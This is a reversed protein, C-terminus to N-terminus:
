RPLHISARLGGESRNALVIEGGHAHVITRAVSLGLGAGGTERSRSRELRYFPAFVEKLEAEPIGPGEDDVVIEIATPAPLVRVRVNGGYKVANDVLNTIARKLALPRCPYKAPAGEEFAVPRGTDAMDACISETLASLDVIRPEEREADERAFALTSAIMSEMEDLTLLTKRREEEDDIYEARLRLLTIPTRLDHSIAALM